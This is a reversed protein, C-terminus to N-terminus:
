SGNILIVLPGDLDSVVWDVVRLRLMYRYPIMGNPVMDAITFDPQFVKSGVLHNCITQRLSGVM